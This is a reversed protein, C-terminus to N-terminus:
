PAIPRLEHRLAELQAPDPTRGYVEAYFARAAVIPDDGHLWEVGLLRNISPPHDIWGFPKRPMVYAHGERVARLSRWEASKAIVDRMVPEGFILVDPDLAAIQKLSAQRLHGKGPPALVKWHLVGFVEAGLSGPPVLVLGDTSRAYVVTRRPGAGPTHLIHEALQALQEARAGRGLAAGLERLVEPMRELAGDLLIVPLKTAAQLQEDRTTWKADVDGYDVILDPKEALVQAAFQPVAPMVRPLAAVRAPLFAAASPGPKNPWGIMLDPALAELLVAAPAGVPLVRAVHSPIAVHRGTADTIEMSWALSPLLLLVLLLVRM